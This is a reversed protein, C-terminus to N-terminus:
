LPCNCIWRDYFFFVSHGNELITLVVRNLKFSTKCRMFFTRYLFQILRFIWSNETEKESQCEYSSRRTRPRCLAYIFLMEQKVKFLVFQFVLELWAFILGFYEVKCSWINLASVIYTWYKLLSFRSSLGSQGQACRETVCPFIPASNILGSQRCCM